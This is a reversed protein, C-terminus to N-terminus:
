ISRGSNNWEAIAMNKGRQPKTKKTKFNLENTDVEWGALRLQADILERTESEDLDIHRASSESRQIIEEEKEKSLVTAEKEALLKNFREELAAFNKELENLAHRADLNAPMSFKLDAINNNEASYTQYFWKAIKFSSFLISKADELSGKSDHAAINGKHKINHILSAINPQLIREDELIRIRNHLTNERPKDLRHEEYLYEVLKEEFVRLKWLTTVPDTHLNYEAASGINFLIPFEKELFIFNSPM